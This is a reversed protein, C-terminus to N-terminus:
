HQFTLPMEQQITGGPLRQDQIAGALHTRIGPKFQDLIGTQQGLDGPQHFPRHRYQALHIRVKEIQRRFDDGQRHLRM